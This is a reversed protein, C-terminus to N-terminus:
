TSRRSSNRVRCQQWGRGSRRHVHLHYEANAATLLPKSFVVVANDGDLDQYTVTSSSVLTAPTTRSELQQVMLKTKSTRM